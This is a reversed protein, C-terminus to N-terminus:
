YTHTHTHTHTHTINANGKKLPQTQRKVLLRAQRLIRQAAQHHSLGSNEKKGGTRLLLSTLRTTEPSTQPADFLAVSESSMLYTNFEVADTKTRRKVKLPDDTRMRWEVRARTSPKVEGSNSFRKKQSSTHGRRTGYTPSTASLPSLHVPSAATQPRRTPVTTSYRIPSSSTNSSSGHTTGLSLGADDVRQKSSFKRGTEIALEELMAVAAPLSNATKGSACWADDRKGSMSKLLEQKGCPQWYPTTQSCNSAASEVKLKSSAVYVARNKNVTILNFIINGEITRYVILLMCCM